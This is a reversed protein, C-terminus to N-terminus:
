KHVKMFPPPPLTYGSSGEASDLTADAACSKGADDGSNHVGSITGKNASAYFVQEGKEKGYGGESEPREMESKIKEGKATLPM